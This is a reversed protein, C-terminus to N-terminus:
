WAHCSDGTRECPASPKADLGLLGLCLTVLEDAPIALCPKESCRSVRDWTACQCPSGRLVRVYPGLPRWRGPDTPGFLAVTPIGLAAAVHTLGSDHGVFLGVQALVGALTVLDLGSLTPVPEPLSGLVASIMETDAPGAILVPRVGDEQLRVVVGALLDPSVCKHRSGSGPHVAVVPGAEGQLTAQLLPQTAALIRAPIELTWGKSPTPALAAVTELFRDAQHGGLKGRQSPSSAIVTPVGLAQLSATLRGERDVLWAIAVDCRHLWDRLAAGVREPGALLDALSGGEIPMTVDVEHCTQLLRGVEIGAVLAVQHGALACRLARIAPVSLIVDGLSGPHIVLMTRPSPNM